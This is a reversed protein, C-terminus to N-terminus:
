FSAGALRATTKTPILPYNHTKIYIKSLGILRNAIPSKYKSSVRVEEGRFRNKTFRYDARREGFEQFATGGEQNMMFGRPHMELWTVMRNQSFLLRVSFEALLLGVLTSAVIITVSIIGRTIKM